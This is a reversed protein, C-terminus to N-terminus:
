AWYGYLQALGPRPVASCTWALGLYLPAPGPRGLVRVGGQYGIGGHYGGQVGVGPVWWGCWGSVGSRVGRVAAAPVVQDHESPPTMLTNGHPSVLEASETRSGGKRSM